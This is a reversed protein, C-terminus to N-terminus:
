ANGGPNEGFGMDWIGLAAVSGSALGSASLETGSGLVLNLDLDLVRWSAITNPKQYKWFMTKLM